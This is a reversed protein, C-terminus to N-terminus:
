HVEFSGPLLELQTTDPIFLADCDASPKVQSKLFSLAATRENAELVTPIAQCLAQRTRSQEQAQEPRNGDKQRVGLRISGTSKRYKDEIVTTKGRASELFIELNRPDTKSAIDISPSHM